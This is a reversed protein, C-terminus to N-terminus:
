KTKIPDILRQYTGDNKMDRLIAALRLILEKHKKHFYPFLPTEELTGANRINANKFEPNQFIFEVDKPIIFLDVRSEVIMALGQAVRDIIFINKEDLYEFVREEIFKSGRLIVVTYGKKKLKKWRDIRIGPNISYLCTVISVISENVHILDPYSNDKSIGVIRMGDGDTLGSDAAQLAREGPYYVLEFSFGLRKFAEFYLINSKKYTSTWENFATSFIITKKKSQAEVSGSGALVVVLIFYFIKQAM